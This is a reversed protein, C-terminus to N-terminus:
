KQNWGVLKGERCWVWRDTPLDAPIKSVFENIPGLIQAKNPIERGPNVVVRLLKAEHGVACGLLRSGTSVLRGRDLVKIFGSPSFDTLMVDAGLFAERGVLSLQIGYHGSNAGPYLVCGSVLGMRSVGAGEGLVSYMVQCGEGVYSRDALHSFRVFANAGIRVNDGLVSAEVVASPHIDCNKGKQVLKNMVKYKNFSCARIVAWLLALPREKMMDYGWTLLAALNAKMIHTWHRVRVPMVDTLPYRIIGSESLIPHVPLELPVLAPELIATDLESIEWGEFERCTFSVKPPIYLVPYVLVPVEGVEIRHLNQLAGSFETVEGESLALATPRTAERVLELFKKIVKPTVWMGEEVLLAPGTIVQEYEYIKLKAGIESCLEDHWSSLPRDFIRAQNPRENFPSILDTASFIWFHM